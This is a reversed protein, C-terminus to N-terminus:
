RIDKWNKIANAYGENTGVDFVPGDHVFGVLENKRTLIEFLDKIMFKKEPINRLVAPDLICMGANILNTAAIKPKENFDTVKNGLMRVVGYSQPNNVTVLLMTAISNNKKHFDYMEPIKPDMLTDVNLLVFTEKIIDKILVLPGASGLPHNEEIYTIKVGFRSGNGFYERVKNTNEGALIIISNIEYKKLMNIQHQLIPIGHIPIMPKPIEYTIPRLDAGEGGALIIAIHLDTKNIGRIILSEIAHSRNRIDNKDIMKDIKKLLDKKVTITIREFTM